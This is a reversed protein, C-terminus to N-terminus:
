GYIHKTIVVELIKNVSDVGSVTVQDQGTTDDANITRSDAGISQVSGVAPTATGTYQVRYVNLPNDYVRGYTTGTASATVTEAMVGLITTTAATAKTVRGNSLTVIDGAKFSEGPTLVYPVPNTAFGALNRVFEFGNPKHAM